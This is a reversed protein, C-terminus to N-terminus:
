NARRRRYLALGILGSSLLIMTSPEPVENFTFNDMVFHYGSGGLYEANVGDFSNFSLTDIGLFNFDFWTPSVTDVIVTRLYVQSIGLFGKVEINLGDNWAGTLYAGNFDFIGDSVSVTAPRSQCNYAVYPESVTGYAYGDERLTSDLYFMESWNLGGYGDVIMGGLGTDIDDFTLVVAGASCSLGFVMLFVLLLKKM